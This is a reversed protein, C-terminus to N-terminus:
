GSTPGSDCLAQEASPIDSPSDLIFNQQLLEVARIKGAKESCSLLGRPMVFMPETQLSIPELFDSNPRRLTHLVSFECPHADDPRISRSVPRCKM